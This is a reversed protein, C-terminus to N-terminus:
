LHNKTTTLRFILAAALALILAFRVFWLSAGIGTATIVAGTVLPAAIDAGGCLMAVLAGARGARHPNLGVATIVLLSFIVGLFLGTIFYVTGLVAFSRAFYAAGMCCMGAGLNICSLTLPRIRRLVLSFLLSGIMCGSSYLTLVNVGREPPIGLSVTYSPTYLNITNTATCYFVCVAAFLLWTRIGPGAPSELAKASAQSGEIRQSSNKMLPLILLMLVCIGACFYYTYVFPLGQKLLFGTVLSPIFCGIGFFAQGVSMASPYHGPFADLFIVPCAADQAGMGIGGLIAFVLATRISGALPIGGFFCLLLTLGGAAVWKTGLRETLRGVFFVTCVRGLAFASGLATVAVLESKFYGILQELTSGIVLCASGTLLYLVFGEM